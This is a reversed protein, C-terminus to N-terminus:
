FYINLLSDNPFPQQLFKYNKLMNKPGPINININKLINIYKM